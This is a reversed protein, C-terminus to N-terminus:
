KQTYQSSKLVINVQKAAQLMRGDKIGNELEFCQLNTTDLYNIKNTLLELVLSSAEELIISGLLKM